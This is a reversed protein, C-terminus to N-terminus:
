QKQWETAMRFTASTAAEANAGTAKVEDIANAPAALWRAYERSLM